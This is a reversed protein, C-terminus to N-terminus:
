VVCETRVDGVVTSCHRLQFAAPADPPLCCSAIVCINASYNQRLFRRRTGDAPEFSVRCVPRTPPHSPGTQIFPAFGCLSRTSQGERSGGSGDALYQRTHQSPSAIPCTMVAEPCLLRVAKPGRHSRFLLLAGQVGMFRESAPTSFPVTRSYQSILSCFTM